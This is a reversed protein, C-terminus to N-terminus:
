CSVRQTLVEMLEEGLGECEQSLSLTVETQRRPLNSFFLSTYQFIELPQILYFQSESWFWTQNTGDPYSYHIKIVVPRPDRPPYFTRTIQYRNKVRSLFDRELSHFSNNQCFNLAHGTSLFLSTVVALVLLMTDLTTNHTPLSDVYVTLSDIYQLM